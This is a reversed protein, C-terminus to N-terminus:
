DRSFGKCAGIKAHPLRAAASVIGQCVVTEEVCLIEPLQLPVVM